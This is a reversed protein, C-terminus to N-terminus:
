ALPLSVVAAHAQERDADEAVRDEALLGTRNVRERRLQLPEDVVHELRHLGRM